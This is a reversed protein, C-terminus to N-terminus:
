IQKSSWEKYSHPDYLLVGMDGYKIAIWEGSIDGPVDGITNFVVTNACSPITLKRGPSSPNRARYHIYEVKNKNKKYEIEKRNQYPFINEEIPWRSLTLTAHKHTDRVLLVDYVESLQFLLDAQKPTLRM